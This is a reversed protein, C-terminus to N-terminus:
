RRRKKGPHRSRVGDEREVRAGVWTGLADGRSMGIAALQHSGGVEDPVDGLARWRNGGLDDLQVDAEITAEPLELLVRTTVVRVYTTALEAGVAPV